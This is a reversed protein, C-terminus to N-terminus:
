PLDNYRHKTLSSCDTPSCIAYETLLLFHCYSSASSSSSILVNEKRDVVIATSLFLIHVNEINVIHFLQTVKKERWRFIINTYVCKIYFKYQWVSLALLSFTHIYIFNDHKITTMDDCTSRLHMVTMCMYMCVGLYWLTPCISEFAYLLYRYVFIQPM